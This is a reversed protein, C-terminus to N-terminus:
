RAFKLVLTSLMSQLCRSGNVVCNIPKDSINPTLCTLWESVCPRPDMRQPQTSILPFPLAWYRWRGAHAMCPRYSNTIFPSSCAQKREPSEAALFSASVISIFTCSAVLYFLSFKRPANVDRLHRSETLPRATTTIAGHDTFKMLIGLMRLRQL